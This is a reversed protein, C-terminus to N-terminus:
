RALSRYVDLLGRGAAEQSFEQTVRERGAAGLRDRLSDEARIRVLAATLAQRDGAPVVLADEGDRCVGAVIGVETIVVPLGAAWAELLVLPGSEHLSPFVFADAGAYQERVEAASQRGVFRVQPGVGAAAARRQYVDPDLGDGVVVLVCDPETRALDAFSDILLDIGKLPDLRGVYLFRFEGTGAVFRRHPTFAGVDVTNPWYRAPRLGVAALEAVFAPNPTLLLRHRAHRLLSKELWRKVAPLAPNNFTISHCTNITPIGYLRAAPALAFGFDATHTHIVDPRLRRLYWFAYLMMAFLTLTRKFGIVDIERADLPWGFKTIRPGSRIDANNSTLVFVQHGAASQHRELQDVVVADGGSADPYRKTAHLIRV